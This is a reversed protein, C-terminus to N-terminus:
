VRRMEKNCFLALSLALDLATPMRPLNMIQCGKFIYENIIQEVKIQLLSQVRQSSCPHFFLLVWQQYYGLKCMGSLPIFALLLVFSGSEKFLTTRLM